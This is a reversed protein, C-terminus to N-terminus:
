LRPAVSTIHHSDDQERCSLTLGAAYEPPMDGCADHRLGSCGPLLVLSMVFVAAIVYVIRRHM